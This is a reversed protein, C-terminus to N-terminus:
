SQSQVIPESFEVIYKITFLVPITSPDSGGDWASMAFNFYADDAPNAAVNGGLRDLNDKVDTINHFKKASYKKTIKNNRNGGTINSIYNVHRSRANEVVTSIDTITTSIDRDVRMCAFISSTDNNNIGNLQATCKSGLVVYHTYLAMWQDFGMAQHGSGTQNPDYLGGCHFRQTVWTGVGINMNVVEAYTLIARQTKPFVGRAPILAASARKRALARRVAAQIVSASKHAPRGRRRGPMYINYM